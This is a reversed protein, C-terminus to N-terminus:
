FGKPDVSRLIYALKPTLLNPKTGISQTSFHKGNQSTEPLVVQLKEPSLKTSLKSEMWRGQRNNKEGEIERLKGPLWIKKQDCAWLMHTETQQDYREPLLWDKNPWFSNTREVVWLVRLLWRWIWLEFSHINKREDKRLTTWHECGHRTM